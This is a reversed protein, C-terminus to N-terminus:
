FELSELKYLLSNGAEPVPKNGATGQGMLRQVYRAIVDCEINVIDGTKKLPLTTAALTHPIISLDFSGSSQSAITLSIGDIAVSGKQAILPALEPKMEITRVLSDGERRDHLIKATGDVHGLVLHGDLRDCLRLAREMNVRTGARINVLSTKRLTEYVATFYVIHASTREITLCTGDIAVSSGIDAEFLKQDPSIGITISNNGRHVELVTGITEILGTFM